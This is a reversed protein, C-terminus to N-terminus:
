HKLNTYETIWLECSLCYAHITKKYKPVTWIISFHSGSWLSNRELTLKTSCEGSLISCSLRLLEEECLILYQHVVHGLGCLKCDIQFLTQKWNVNYWFSIKYWSLNWNLNFVPISEDWFLKYQFSIDTRYWTFLYLSIYSSPIFKNWFSFWEPDHSYGRLWCLSCFIFLSCDCKPKGLVMVEKDQTIIQM